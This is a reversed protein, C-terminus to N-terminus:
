GELLEQLNRGDPPGPSFVVRIGADLAARVRSAACLGQRHRAAVATVDVAFDCMLREILEAIFADRPMIEVGRTVSLRGEGVAARWDREVTLNQAYGQPSRSIASAGLGILLPAADDTYGQFNRRLEGSRAAATQCSYM